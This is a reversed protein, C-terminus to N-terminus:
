HLRYKFNFNNENNIFDILKLYEMMDIQNSINIQYFISDSIKLHKLEKVSNVYIDKVKHLDIKQKPILPPLLNKTNREFEYIISDNLHISDDISYFKEFSQNATILEVKTYGFHNIWCYVEILDKLQINQTVYITIKNFRHESPGFFKPLDELASIQGNLIVKALGNEKIM